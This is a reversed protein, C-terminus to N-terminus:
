RAGNMKAYQRLTAAYTGYRNSRLSNGHWGVVVSNGKTVGFFQGKAGGITQVWQGPQLTKMEAFTMGRINITKVYQAM